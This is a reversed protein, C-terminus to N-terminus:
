PKLRLEDVGNGCDTVYEATLEVAERASKGLRMAMLAFDRGSGIAAFSDELRVPYPTRHFTDVSGTPRIVLATVADDKDRQSQPFDEPKEGGKFWALVEGAQSLSGSFGILQRGIKHIKTVTCVVGDWDGRKDAALTKGDWAICTM